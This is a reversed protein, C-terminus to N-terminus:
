VLLPLTEASVSVSVCVCRCVYGSSGYRVVLENALSVRGSAAGNQRDTTTGEVWGVCVAQDSVRDRSVAGVAPSEIAPPAPPPPSSSFDSLRALVVSM